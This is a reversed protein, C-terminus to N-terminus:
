KGNGPVGLRISLELEFPLPNKELFDKMEQAEANDLYFNFVRQLGLDGELLIIKFLHKKSTYSYEFTAAECLVPRKYFFGSKLRKLELITPPKTGYESEPMFGIHKKPDGFFSPNVEVEEQKTRETTKKKPM